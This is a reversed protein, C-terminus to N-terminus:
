REPTLRVRPLSPARTPLAQGTDLSQDHFQGLNALERERELEARAILHYAREMMKENEIFPGMFAQEGTWRRAYEAQAEKFKMANSVELARKARALWRSTVDGRVEPIPTVGCSSLYDLGRQHEALLRRPDADPFTQIVTKKFPFCQIPRMITSLQWEESTFHSSVELQTYGEREKHPPYWVAEVLGTEDRWMLAVTAKDGLGVTGVRIFGLQEVEKCLEVLPEPLPHAYPIERWRLGLRAKSLALAVVGMLILIQVFIGIGVLSSLILWEETSRGAPEVIRAAAVVISGGVVLYLATELGPHRGARTLRLSFIVISGVFAVFFALLFM